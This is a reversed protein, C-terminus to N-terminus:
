EKRQVKVRAVASGTIINGVVRNRICVGEVHELIDLGSIAMTDALARGAEWM